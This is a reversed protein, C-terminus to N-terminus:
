LALKLATVFSINDRYFTDGAAAKKTECVVSRGAICGRLGFYFAVCRLTHTIHRM